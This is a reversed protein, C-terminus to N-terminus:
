LEYLKETIKTDRECKSCYAGDGVKFYSFEVKINHGCDMLYARYSLPKFEEHWQNNDFLEPFSTDTARLSPNGYPFIKEGCNPCKIANSM